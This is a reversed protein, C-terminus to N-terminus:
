KLLHCKASQFHYDAQPRLVALCIFCFKWCLLLAGVGFVSVSLPVCVCVCVGGYEVNTKAMLASPPLSTRWADTQEDEDEEKEKEKDEQAEQSHPGTDETDTHKHCACATLSAPQSAPLSAAKTTSTLTPPGTNALANPYSRGSNEESPPLARPSPPLPLSPSPLSRM